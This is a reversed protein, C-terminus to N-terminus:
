LRTDVNPFIGAENSIPSRLATRKTWLVGSARLVKDFIIVNHVWEDM